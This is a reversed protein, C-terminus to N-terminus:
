HCHLVLATALCGARKLCQYDQLPWGASAKGSGGFANNKIFLGKTKEFREMDM